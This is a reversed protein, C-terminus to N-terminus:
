LMLVSLIVKKPREPITSIGYADASFATTPHLATGASLAFPAGGSPITPQGSGPFRRFPPAAHAPISSHM